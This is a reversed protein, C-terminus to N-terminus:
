KVISIRTSTRTELAATSLEWGVSALAREHKRLLDDAKRASNNLRRIMSVEEEEADQLRKSPLCDVTFVSALACAQWWAILIDRPTAERKLAIRLDSKKSRSVPWLIYAQDDYVDFIRGLLGDRLTLSGTSHRSVASERLLGHLAAGVVCQGRRVGTVDRLAGDWEFIREEKSIESPTPIYNRVLHHYVLTARQRNLSRMAVARVARRNTELHISLLLILLTWTAFSSKVMPVIASGALMGLLSIVTEQSSDKANLEGLNGWQAFHASLSAKASGAAVGCLARLLSSFSLVIVRIPKPFAPSLCDLVFAMDNLIDALLRYM